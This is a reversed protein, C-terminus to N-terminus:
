LIPHFTKLRQNYPTQVPKIRSLNVWSTTGQLKIAMPTSLLVQYLGMGLDLLDSLSGEKWTKLLIM